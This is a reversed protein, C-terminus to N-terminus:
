FLYFIDNLITFNMGIYLIRLRKLDGHIAYIINKIKLLIILM